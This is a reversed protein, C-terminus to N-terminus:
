RSGSSPAGIDTIDPAAMLTMRDFAALLAEPKAVPGCMRWELRIATLTQPLAGSQADILQWALVCSAGGATAVAYDYVGYRNRRATAVIEAPLGPFEKQLAARLREETYLPVPFPREVADANAFSFLPRAAETDVWLRNEGPLATANAFTIDYSTFVNGIVRRRAQVIDIKANAPLAVPMEDEAIRVWVPAKEAFRTEGGSVCGALAIASLLAAPALIMNRSPM